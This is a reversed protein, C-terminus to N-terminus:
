LAVIAWAASWCALSAALWPVATRHSADARVIALNLFGAYAMAFAIFLFLKVPLIM